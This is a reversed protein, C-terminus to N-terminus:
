ANKIRGQIILDLKENLSAISSQVKAIEVKVADSEIILQEYKLDQKSVKDELAKIRHQTLIWTGGATILFTALSILLTIPVTIEM